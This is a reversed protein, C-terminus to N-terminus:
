GVKGGGLPNVLAAFVDGALIDALESLYGGGVECIEAPAVTGRRSSFYCAECTAVNM